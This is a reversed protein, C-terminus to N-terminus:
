REDQKLAKAFADLFRAHSLAPKDFHLQAAVVQTIRFDSRSRYCLPDLM